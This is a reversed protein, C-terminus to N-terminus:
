KDILNIDKMQLCQIALEAGRDAGILMSGKNDPPLLVVADIVRQVGASKLPLCSPDSAYDAPAGFVVSVEDGKRLPLRSLLGAVPGVTLVAEPPQPLEIYDDGRLRAGKKLPRLSVIRNADVNPSLELRVGGAEFLTVSRRQIDVHEFAGVDASVFGVDVHVLNVYLWAGAVGLISLMLVCYCLRPISDPRVRSQGNSPQVGGNPQRGDKLPPTPSGTHTIGTIIFARFREFHTRDIDPNFTAYWKSRLEDRYVDFVSRLATGYHQALTLSWYYGLYSTMLSLGFIVIFLKFQGSAALLFSSLAVVGSGASIVLPLQYAMIQREITQLIYDPLLIAMRTWMVITDIGYRDRPYLEAARLINGLRTPLVFEEHETYALHVKLPNAGRLQVDEAMRARRRQHASVGPPSFRSGRRAVPRLNNLLGYLSVLPYGEYFRVLRDWQSALMSAILWAVALLGLPILVILAPALDLYAAIVSELGWLAQVVVAATLPLFVLTPVLANLVFRNEFRNTAESVVSIAM